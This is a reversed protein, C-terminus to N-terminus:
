GAELAPAFCRSARRCGPFLCSPYDAPDRAICSCEVVECHPLSESVRAAELDWRDFPVTSIADHGAAPGSGGSCYAPSPLRAALSVHIVADDQAGSLSPLLSSALLPQIDTIHIAAPQSTAAPKPALKPLLYAAISTVSPYDFVLTGPLDLGVAQGIKNSLEM